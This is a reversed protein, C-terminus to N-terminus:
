PAADKKMEQVGIQLQLRIIEAQFNEEFYEIANNYDYRVRNLILTQAPSPQSYDLETGVLDNLDAKAREIMEALRTDEEDWTIRLAEKVKELM